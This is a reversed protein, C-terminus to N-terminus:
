IHIAAGSASKAAEMIGESMSPHAFVLKGVQDITLGAAKAVLLQHVLEVANDGAIHGGILLRSTKEYLIKVMGEAKGTAVAKGVARFPFNAVGFDLGTAAAREESYGFSGIQPETYVASPISMI